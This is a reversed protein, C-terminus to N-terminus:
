VEVKRGKVGEDVLGDGGLSVGKKEESREKVGFVGFDSSSVEVDGRMHGIGVSRGEGVEELM